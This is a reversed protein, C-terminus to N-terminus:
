NLILKSIYKNEGSEIKVFFLGQLNKLDTIKIENNGVFNREYVTKGCIDKISVFIKNSIIENPIVILFEGNAPNPFLKIEANIKIDSVNVLNGSAPNNTSTETFYVENGESGFYECVMFTYEGAQDANVTLATAPFEGNYICYWGSTGIQNGEGFNLSAAYTIGDTPLPKEPLVNGIKMFVAEKCGNGKDWYLFTEAKGSSATFVESAQIKEYEYVGITPFTEDRLYGSIDDTVFVSSEGKAIAPSCAQLNVNSTSIFLPNEYFSNLDGNTWTQWTSLNKTGENTMALATFDFDGDAFYVNNNIEAFPSTTLDTVIAVGWTSYVSTNREGLNNFIINNTFNIGTGGNVSIGSVITNDSVNGAGYLDNPQLYITNFSIDLGSVIAPCSIAIGTPYNDIYSDSVIGTIENNYIKVNGSNVEYMAIGRSVNTGFQILNKIINKKILIDGTGYAVSIGQIADTGDSSINAIINQSVTFNNVANFGIGNRIYDDPNDSGFINGIVSVNEGSEAMFGIQCSSIVCNQIVVNSYQDTYFGATEFEQSFAKLECNKVTINTGPTTVTFLALPATQNAEGTNRIILNRSDTGNNSGDIIIHSADILAVVSSYPDTTPKAITIDAGSAPRITLTNTESSGTFSMIYIPYTETEPDYDSTLEFVVAGAASNLILANMADTISAFNYGVGAGISYIGSMPTPLKENAVELNNIQLKVIENAIIKSKLFPNINKYDQAILNVNAFFILLSLFFPLLKTKMATQYKPKVYM